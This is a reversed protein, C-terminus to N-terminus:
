SCKLNMRRALRPGEGTSELRRDIQSVRAISIGCLCAVDRLRLMAVRRLLYITSEFAERHSRGPVKAPDLGFECAIRAMVAEPKPARARLGIAQARRPGGQRAKFATWAVFGEGGLVNKGALDDWPSPGGIGEMVFVRYARRATGPHSGFQGIVTRVSLWPQAPEPWATSEYSSWQWDGPHEVLGARVPNLVIYRCLELLYADQDVVISKYRGQFLHGVRSHRWNFWQTYSGILRQMGRSLKGSPTELLLHYHNPMLCYAHCIWGQERIEEGLAKQFRQYDADNLYTKQRANGRSTIHYLAGKIELRLPRAM